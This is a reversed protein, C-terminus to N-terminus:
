KGHRNGDVSGKHSGSALLGRKAKLVFYPGQVYKSFGDAIRIRDGVNRTSLIEKIVTRQLPHSILVLMHVNDSEAVRKVIKTNTGQKDQLDFDLVVLRVNSSSKLVSKSLEILGVVRVTFEPQLIRRYLSSILGNRSIILGKFQPKRMLVVEGSGHPELDIWFSERLPM